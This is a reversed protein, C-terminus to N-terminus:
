PQIRTPKLHYASARQLLLLLLLLPAAKFALMRFAPVIKRMYICGGLVFCCCDSSVQTSRMAAIIDTIGPAKKRCRDIGTLM